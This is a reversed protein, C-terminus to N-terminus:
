VNCSRTLELIMRGALPMPVQRSLKERFYPTWLLGDVPKKGTFMELVLIGFNYVDGYAPVACEIGYEPAAYGITGEIRVSCSQISSSQLSVKPSFRALGFDGVGATMDADLLFNNPKLDCHVVPVQCDHHLYDLAAAVDVSINLRQILNLNRAEHAEDSIQVPHLWEELSGNVMFEYVLAEFDVGACVSVVRVLNRHKINILAACETM